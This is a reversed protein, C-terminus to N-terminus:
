DSQTASGITKEDRGTVLARAIGLLDRRARVKWDPPVLASVADEQGEGLEIVAIGQNQLLGPLASLVKRYADLGDAGGDLARAPEFGAVEPMLGAIEARPIYPPNCLILGFRGSKRCDLAAAWDGAAFAARGGYGLAGANAAALSAAEPALDIGVGFAGPFLALAAILLCGTGTGLDLIRAPAFGAGRKAAEVAEILTESEPRPILTAPSVRFVMDRFERHGTIYAMPERAERRALWPEVAAFDVTERLILTEASIGLAQRLLIRAERRPEEIGAAELRHAIAALAEATRM